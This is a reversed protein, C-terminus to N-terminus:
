HLYYRLPWAAHMLKRFDDGTTHVLTRHDGGEFYVDRRDGLSDDWVTPIGYAAGLPPVAGPECDRFLEELEYENAIRLDRRLAGGLAEVDLNHNAGIVALLYGSDDELLVAKAIRGEPLLAARAAEACTASAPHPVADWAVDQAAIYEKVRSAITM